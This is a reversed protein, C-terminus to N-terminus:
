RPDANAGSLRQCTVREVIRPGRARVLRRSGSGPPPRGRRRNIWLQRDVKASPPAPKGTGRVRQSITRSSVRSTSPPSPTSRAASAPPIRPVSPDDGTWMRVRGTAPCGRAVAVVEFGSAELHGGCVSSSASSDRSIHGRMGTQGTPRLAPGPDPALQPGGTHTNETSDHRRILDFGATALLRETIGVGPL